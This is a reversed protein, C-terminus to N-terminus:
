PDADRQLGAHGPVRHRDDSTEARVLIPCEHGAIPRSDTVRDSRLVGAALAGQAAAGIIVQAHFRAPGRQYERTATIMSNGPMEMSLGDPKKGQWGDLEVLFPIFRQFAQQAHAASGRLLSAAPLATLALRLARRRDIM